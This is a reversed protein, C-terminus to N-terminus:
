LDRIAEEVKKPQLKMKVRHDKLVELATAQQQLPKGQMILLIQLISYKLSCTCNGKLIQIMFSM